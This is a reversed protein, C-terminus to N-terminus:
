SYSMKDTRSYFQSTHELTDITELHKFAAIQLFVIRLDSLATQTAQKLNLGTQTAWRGDFQHGTFFIKNKLLVLRFSLLM